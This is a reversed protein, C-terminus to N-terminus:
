IDMFLDHHVHVTYTSMTEGRIKAALEYHWEDEKLVNAKEPSIFLVRSLRFSIM